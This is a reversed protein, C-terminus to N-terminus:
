NVTVHAERVLTKVNEIVTAHFPCNFKATFQKQSCIDEVFHHFDTPNKKQIFMVTQSIAITHLLTEM